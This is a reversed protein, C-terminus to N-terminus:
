NLYKSIQDLASKMNLNYVMDGEIIRVGFLLDPEVRFKVQKNAYLKSFSMKEQGSLELNSEVFVTKKDESQRLAKLYSKLESRGLQKAIRLVRKEDLVSDIYSIEALKAIQKKTKM